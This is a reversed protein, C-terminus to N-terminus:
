NKLVKTRIKSGYIWKVVVPPMMRFCFRAIPFRYTLTFLGHMKYIGRMYIIFENKAKARSRRKFVDGERRFNLVVDPVNAIHYGAMLADFWLQIDQSMRYREDYKLGSIFMEMRMMVAPHALPSAKV